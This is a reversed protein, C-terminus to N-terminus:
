MITTSVEPEDEEALAEATNALEETVDNRLRLSRQRGWIDLGESM